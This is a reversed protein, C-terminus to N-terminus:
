LLELVGVQEAEYVTHEDAMGPYARGMKLLRNNKYLIAPAGVGGELSFGDCYM